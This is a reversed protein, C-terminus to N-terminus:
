ENMGSLLCERPGLRTGLGTLVSTTGVRPNYDPLPPLQHHYTVLPAPIPPSVKSGAEPVPSPESSPPQSPTKLPTPLCDLCFSCCFGLSLPSVSTTSPSKHSNNRDEGPRPLTQPATPAPLFFHGTRLQLPLPQPAKTCTGAKAEGAGEWGLLPPM